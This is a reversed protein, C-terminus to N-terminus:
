GKVVKRPCGLLTKKEGNPGGMKNWGNLAMTCKGGHPRRPMELRFQATVEKTKKETKEQFLPVCRPDIGGSPPDDWSKYTTLLWRPHFHFGIFLPINVMDVPSRWIEAMLLLVQLIMGTLLHNTVGM